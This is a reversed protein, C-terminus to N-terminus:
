FLIGIPHVHPVRRAPVNDTPIMLDKSYVSSVNALSNDFWTGQSAVDDVGARWFLLFDLIICQNITSLTSFFISLAMIYLDFLSIDWCSLYAILLYTPCISLIHSIPFSPWLFASRLAVLEHM